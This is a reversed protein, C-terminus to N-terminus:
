YESTKVINGGTKVSVKACMSSAESVFAQTSVPASANVGNNWPRGGPMRSAGVERRSHAAPLRYTDEVTMAPFGESYETGGLTILADRSKNYTTIQIALKQECEILRATARTRASTSRANQSKETQLVSLAKVTMQILRISDFLSGKRLKVEADALISMDHNSRYEATWASPLWLDWTEPEDIGSKSPGIGDPNVAPGLVENRIERWANISAALKERRRAVETASM